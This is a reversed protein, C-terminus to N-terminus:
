AANTSTRGQDTSDPRSRVPEASVSMGLTDWEAGAKVILLSVVRMVASGPNWENVTATLTVAGGESVPDIKMGSMGRRLGESARTGLRKSLEDVAASTPDGPVVARVSYLRDEPPSIV